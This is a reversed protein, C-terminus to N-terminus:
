PFCVRALKDADERSLNIVCRINEKFVDFGSQGYFCRSKYNGFYLNKSNIRTSFYPIDGNEISLCEYSRVDEPFEASNNIYSKLNKNDACFVFLSRYYHSSRIITRIESNKNYYVIDQLNKQKKKIKEIGFIFGQRLEKKNPLGRPRCYQKPTRVQVRSVKMAETDTSSFSLTKQATYVGSKVGLPSFDQADHFALLGTARFSSRWDLHPSSRPHLITEDDIVVPFGDSSIINQFHLDTAALVGSLAVLIGYNFYYQDSYEPTYGTSLCFYGSNKALVPRCVLEPFGLETAIDCMLRRSEAGRPKYYATTGEDDGIRVTMEGGLHSDGVSIKISRHNVGPVLALLSSSLSIVNFIYRSILIFRKKIFQRVKESRGGDNLIRSFFNEYAPAPTTFHLFYPLTVAQAHREADLALYLEYSVRYSIDAFIQNLISSQEIEGVEIAKM